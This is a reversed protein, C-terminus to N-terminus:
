RIFLQKNHIKGLLKNFCINNGDEYNNWIMHTVIDVFQINSCQDSPIPSMELKTQSNMEFWLKISLYDLMSNGSKVKISRPDPVLIVKPENQIFDLISLGIMYNYLKNGDDRIHQQVNEKKVTISFISIGSQANLLNIVEEAFHEKHQQSLDAGKIENKPSRHLRRYLDAVVRKPYIKLEDKVILTSITLYRSSGGDRYPRTFSWGLDGSEDIYAIM